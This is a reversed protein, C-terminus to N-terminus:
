QLIVIYFGLRKYVDVALPVYPRRAVPLFALSVKGQCLNGFNKGRLIQLYSFFTTGKCRKKDQAMFKLPKVIKLPAAVYRNRPRKKTNYLLKQM